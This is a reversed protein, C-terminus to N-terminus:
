AAPPGSFGGGNSQGTNIPVVGPTLQLLQTFNRGNLPLDNVQQTAMVTGLNSSTVDLQPETGQVTVVINQVGVQLAFDFTATQGVTLAFSPIQQAGFGSASAELTYSGPIISVIAYVGDHNSVTARDINTDVNHLKVTANAIAAGSPDRVVGNLSATSVQSFGDMTLLFLGILFSLLCVRKSWKTQLSTNSTMRTKKEM